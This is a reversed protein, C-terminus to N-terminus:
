GTERAPLTDAVLDILDAAMESEHRSLIFDTLELELDNNSIAQNLAHFMEVNSKKIRKLVFM